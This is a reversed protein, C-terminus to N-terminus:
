AHSRRGTALGAERHNIVGVDRPTVVQSRLKDTLLIEKWGTKNMAKEFFRLPATKDQFRTVFSGPGGSERDVARWLCHMEGSFKVLM